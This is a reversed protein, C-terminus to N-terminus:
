NTKPGTPAPRATEPLSMFETAQLVGVGFPTPMSMRYPVMLRTGALPALWVEIDRM